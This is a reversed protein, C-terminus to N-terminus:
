FFYVYSVSDLIVYCCDRFVVLFINCFVFYIFNNKRM